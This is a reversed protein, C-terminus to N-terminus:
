AVTTVQKETVVSQANKETRQIPKIYKELESAHLKVVKKSAGPTAHSAGLTAPRGAEKSALAPIYMKKFLDENVDVTFEERLAKLKVDLAEKFKNARVIMELQSKIEELTFYVTAKKDSARMVWIKDTDKVKKIGPFSAVQMAASRIAAPVQAAQQGFVVSSVRNFDRFEGRAEIKALAVFNDANNNVREYFFDADSSDKFSIAEILVGGAVKVYRSKNKEYESAVEQGEVSVDALIDKEYMQVLLSEKILKQTEAFSKKFADQDDLGMKEAKKVILRQQVLRDFVKRKVEGPLGAVGLSQFYRNSQVLQTLYKDFEGKSLAAEGNINLLNPGASASTYSKTEKQAEEKGFLKEKVFNYPACGSLFLLAAGSLVVVSGRLSRNMIFTEQAFIHKVIRYLHQWGVANM